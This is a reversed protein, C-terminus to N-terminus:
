KKRTGKFPYDGGGASMTGVIENEVLGANFDVPTGNYDFEGSMKMTEKNYIFKNIIVEGDSSVIKAAYTKDVESIALVGPLDGYPTGSIVYDWDGAPTPAKSTTKTTACSLLMVSAIALYLLNKM